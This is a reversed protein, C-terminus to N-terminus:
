SATYRLRDRISSLQNQSNVPGRPFPLETNPWTPLDSCPCALAPPLGPSRFPVPMSCRSCPNIEWASTLLEAITQHTGELHANGSRDHVIRQWCEEFQASYHSGQIVPQPLLTEQEEGLM